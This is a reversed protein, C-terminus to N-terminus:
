GRAGFNSGLISLDQVNIKDDMNLDAKANYKSDGKKTGYCAAMITFDGIDVVKDSNIDGNVFKVAPLVVPESINEVTVPPIFYNNSVAQVEYKEGDKLPPLTDIKYEGKENTVTKFTDNPDTSYYEIGTKPDTIKTLITVPVNVAPNGDPMLIKGQISGTGTNDPTSPTNTLLISIQKQEYVTKQGYKDSFLMECSIPTSGTIGTNAKCTICAFIGEGTKAPSPSKLSAALLCTSQSNKINVPIQLRNDTSLFEQYCASQIKLYKNDVTFSAEMGYIEDGKIKLFIQVTEGPKIQSRSPILSLTGTLMPNDPNEPKEQVTINNNTNVSLLVDSVNVKHILSIKLRATGKAAPNVTFNFPKQSTPNTLEFLGSGIIAYNHAVDNLEALIHYNEFDVDQWSVTFHFDSGAEVEQDCSVINMVPTITQIRLIIDNPTKATAAVDKWDLTRSLCSVLIQYHNGPVADAKVPLSIKLNGDQYNDVWTEGANAATDTNVIKANIKYDQYSPLNKLQVNIEITDGAIVTNPYNVFSIAATKLNLNMTLQDGRKIEFPETTIIEGTNLTCQLKYNQGPMIHRFFYEGQSDGRCIGALKNENNLLQVIPKGVPDSGILVSGSINGGIGELTFQNDTKTYDTLNRSYIGKSFDCSNITLFLDDGKLLGQSYYCTWPQSSNTESYEQSIAYSQRDPSDIKVVQLSRSISPDYYNFIKEGHLIEGAISESSATFSLDQVLDSSVSNENVILDQYFESKTYLTIKGQPVVLSYESKDDTVTAYINWKEDMAQILVGQKNATGRIVFGSSLALGANATKGTSISAEESKQLYHSFPPPIVKVSWPGPTLGAFTFGGDNGTEMKSVKLFLGEGLDIGAFVPFGKIAPNIKGAVSGFDNGITIDLNAVPLGDHVSIRGQWPRAGKANGAYLGYVGSPVGEFKYQGGTVNVTTSDQSLLDTLTVNLADTSAGSVTSIQRALVITDSMENSVNGVKDKLKVTVKHIGLQNPLEVSYTDSPDVPYDTYDNDDIKIEVTDLGSGNKDSDHEIKISINRDATGLNGSNVLVKSLTPASKDIGFLDTNIKSYVIPNVTKVRVEFHQNAGDPLNSATFSTSLTNIWDNDSASNLRYQYCYFHPMQSLDNWSWTHSSEGSWQPQDTLNLDCAFEANPSKPDTGDHYEQLNNRGDKDTDQTADAPNLKNLGNADEWADPLGDKDTDKLSLQLQFNCKETKGRDKSCMVFESKDQMLITAQKGEVQFSISLIKYITSQENMIFKNASPSMDAVNSEFPIEMVYSFENNINKLDASLSVKNGEPDQLVLTMNGATLLVSGNDNQVYGYLFLGPEPIGAYLRLTSLLIMFLVILKKM